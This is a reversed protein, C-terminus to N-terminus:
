GEVKGGKTDAVPCIGPSFWIKGFSIHERIKVAANSILVIFLIHFGGLHGDVASHIFSIHYM